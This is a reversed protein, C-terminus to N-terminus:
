IKIEGVSVDVDFEEIDIERDEIIKEKIQQCLQSETLKEHILKIVRMKKKCTIYVDFTINM